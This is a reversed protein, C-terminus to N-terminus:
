SEVKVKRKKSELQAYKLVGGELEEITFRNKHSNLLTGYILYSNLLANNAHNYHQHCKIFHLCDCTRVKIILVNYIKGSRISQVKAVLKFDALVM